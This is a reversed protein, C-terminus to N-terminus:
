FHSALAWLVLVWIPVCLAFGLLAGRVFHIGDRRPLLDSIWEQEDSMLSLPLLLRLSDESRAQTSM